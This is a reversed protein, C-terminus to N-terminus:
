VVAVLESLIPCARDSRIKFGESLTYKRHYNRLYEVSQAAAARVPKPFAPGDLRILGPESFSTLGGRGHKGCYLNLGDYVLLLFWSRLGFDLPISRGM